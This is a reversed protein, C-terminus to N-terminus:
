RTPRLYYMAVIRSTSLANSKNKLWKTHRKMGQYPCSLNVFRADSCCDKRILWWDMWLNRTPPILVQQSRFTSCELRNSQSWSILLRVIFCFCLELLTINRNTTSTSHHYDYTVYWITIITCTLFRIEETFEKYTFERLIQLVQSCIRKM